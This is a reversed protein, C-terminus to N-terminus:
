VDQEPEIIDEAEIESDPSPGLDWRVNATEFPDLTERDVELDIVGRSVLTLRAAHCLVGAFSIPGSDDLQLGVRGDVTTTEVTGGLDENGRFADRAAEILADFALESEAEDDLGMVLQIRWRNIESSTLTDRETEEAAVRRITWGLLQGGETVFMQRFDAGNKTYREYRHVLGAAPVTEITAAIAERIQELSM